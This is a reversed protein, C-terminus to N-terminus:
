ILGEPYGDSSNTSYEEEGIYVTFRDNEAKAYMVWDNGAYSYGEDEDETVSNLMVPMGSKMADYIEQWTKDLQNNNLHVIMVGGTSGGGNMWKGATANYTLTQGDTPNSIDVDTLGVLTSSGGGSSGGANGVSSFPIWEKNSNAMYVGMADGEDKLVVATSGLTIQDKPIATLDNKTDCYHEYTVVNDQSGRKTMVNM